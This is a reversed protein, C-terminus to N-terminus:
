SGRSSVVLLVFRSIQRPVVHSLPAVKVHVGTVARDVTSLMRGITGFHSELWVANSQSFPVYM